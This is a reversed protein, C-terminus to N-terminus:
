QLPVRVVIDSAVPMINELSDFFFIRAYATGDLMNVGVYEEDWAADDTETTSGIVSGNEDYFVTLIGERVINAFDGAPTVEIFGEENIADDYGGQDYTFVPKPAHASGFTTYNGYNDISKNDLMVRIKQGKKVYVTLTEDDTNANEFTALEEDVVRTSEMRIWKKEGAADQAAKIKSDRGYSQAFLESILTGDVDYLQVESGFYHENNVMDTDAGDGYYYGDKPFFNSVTVYGDKPATFTQSIGVLNHYPRNSSNANWYAGFNMPLLINHNIDMKPVSAYNSYRHETIADYQYYYADYYLPVFESYDAKYAELSVASGYFNQQDAMNLRYTNSGDAKKQVTNPFAWLGFQRQGGDPNTVTMIVPNGMTHVDRKDTLVTAGTVSKVTTDGTTNRVGGAQIWTHSALAKIRGNGLYEFKSPDSITVTSNKWEDTLGLDIEGYMARETADPYYNLIFAEDFDYSMESLDLVDYSGDFTPYGMSKSNVYVDTSTTFETDEGQPNVYVATVEVPAGGGNIVGTPEFVGAIATERLVGKADILEYRVTGKAEPHLAIRLDITADTPYVYSHEEEYARFPANVFVEEDAAYDDDDMYTVTFDEVAYSTNGSKGAFRLILKDGTKVRIYENDCTLKEANYAPLFMWGKQWKEPMAASASTLTVTLSDESILPYIPIINGNADIKDLRVYVEAAYSAAATFAPNVIGDRPAKFIIAQQKANGNWGVASGASWTTNKYMSISGTGGNPDSIYYGNADSKSNKYEGWVMSIPLSARSATTDEEARGGSRRMLWTYYVPTDYNTTPNFYAASWVSTGNNLMAPTQGGAPYDEAVGNYTNTTKFLDWADFVMQLEEFSATITQTTAGNVVTIVTENGDVYDDAVTYVGATETATLVSEDFTIDSTELPLAIERRLDVIRDKAKYQATVTKAVSPVYNIKYSSITFSTNNGKTDGIPSYRLVIQDGENLWVSETDYTDKFTSTLPKWDNTWKEPIVVGANPPTITVNVDTTRPYLLTKNGEADLKYMQWVINAANTAGGNHKIVPTVLGAKPATFAYALHRAYDTSQYGTASNNATVPSDFNYGLGGTPSNSDYCFYGGDYIVTPAGGMWHWTADGGAYTKTGFSNHTIWIMSPYYKNDYTAGATLEFTKNQDDEYARAYPMNRVLKQFKELTEYGSQWTYAGVQWVDSGKAPLGANPYDTVPDGTFEHQTTDVMFAEGVDFTDPIVVEGEGEAFVFPVCSLVMALALILSLVKKM